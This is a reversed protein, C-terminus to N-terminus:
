VSTAQTTGSAVAGSTSGSGTRAEPSRTAEVRKSPKAPDGKAQERRREESIDALARAARVIDVPKLGGWLFM